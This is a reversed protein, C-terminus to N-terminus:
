ADSAAKKRGMCAVLFESSTSPSIIKCTTEAQERLLLLVAQNQEDRTGAILQAARAYLDIDTTSRSLPLRLQLSYSGTLVFKSYDLRAPFRSFVVQRRLDEISTNQSAAIARLKADLAQRFDRGNGYKHPDIM